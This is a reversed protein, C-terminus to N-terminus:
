DSDSDLIPSPIRLHGPVTQPRPVTHPLNETYTVIFEPLCQTGSYVVYIISEDTVLERGTYPGSVTPQHPGGEVSDYVQGLKGQVTDFDTGKKPTCWVEKTKLPTGRLVNVLMLHFYKGAADHYLGDIDSSRYVYNKHHSYSSQYASYTGQQYFAKPNNYQMMFGKGTAIADPRTKGSGHWAYETTQRVADKGRQEELIWKQSEWQRRQSRNQVRRVQVVSHTRRSIISTKDDLRKRDFFASLVVAHDSWEPEVNVIHVNGTQHDWSDGMAVDRDWRRAATAWVSGAIYASMDGFDITCKLNEDNGVPFQKGWVRAGWMGRRWCTEIDICQGTDFAVYTGDLSRWQWEYMTNVDKRIQDENFAPRVRGAGDAPSGAVEGNRVVKAPPCLISAYVAKRKKGMAIAPSSESTGTNCGVGGGRTGFGTGGLGGGCGVSAGGRGGPARGGLCRFSHVGAVLSNVCNGKEFGGALPAPEIEVAVINIRGKGSGFDVRVRAAKDACESNCPGVVTGLDRKVVKMPAYDVLSIVRDGKQFGRALTGHEIESAAVLDARGKGAGFEICVRKAKDALDHDSCPGVVTGMDGQLIHPTSRSVLSNVRDGKQFGGALPAPEILRTALMNAKGKGVGFDVCVREAQDIVKNTGPGVVTGVDGKVLHIASHDILSNVRDGKQFGGALLVHEIESTAVMDARAKGFDVCLRTAKDALDDDSCTGVVTGEDGQLVLTAAHDVLSKVRDGKQFGGTLLLHEIQITVLVNLMGKGAGFGFDVCVRSAKDGIEMNCPGFVIGVDGALLNIAAHDVLSIVRDGKQFGGALNAM